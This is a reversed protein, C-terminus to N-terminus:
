RGDDHLDAARGWEARRIRYFLAQDKHEAVDTKWYRMGVKELVSISGANARDVRGIIAPLAFREFGLRLSAVSAETAYGKGWHARRLAYGLDVWVDPQRRLGCWGIWTGDPLLVCWRGFGDARYAPYAALFARAEDVSAFPGDGTHRRVEPDNNLAFCHAADATTMERLILRETRMLPDM